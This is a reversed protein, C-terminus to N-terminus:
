TSHLIVPFHLWAHICLLFAVIENQISSGSSLQILDLAPCSSAAWFWSSVIFPTNHDLVIFYACLKSHIYNNRGKSNSQIKIIKYYLRVKSLITKEFVNSKTFNIKNYNGFDIGNAISLPSVVKEKINKFSPDCLTTKEVGDNNIDVFEPHLHYFSQKDNITSIYVSKVKWFDVELQNDKDDISIKNQKRKKM